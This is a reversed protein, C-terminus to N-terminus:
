PEVAVRLKKGSLASDFASNIEALRISPFDATLHNLLIAHASAFSVASALDRPTYNHVGEIRLLSTVVKEPRLPVPNSPAVSGALIIRGGTDALSLAAVVSENAGSTEFVVDAGSGVSHERVFAESTELRQDATQEATVLHRATVGVSRALALRDERRDIALVHAGAAAAMAAVFLGVAGSGIVLVVRGEVDGATRLAAAATAGACGLWAAQRAAISNPIRALVAGVPLHCFEAFGGSLQWRDNAAAHGFKQLSVCKQPIGRECYRCDGCSAAVGCIFRDGIAVSEGDIDTPGADLGLAVIRGVIEHGLLGSAPAAREGRFTRLDSACITCAEVKLLAEGARLEPLGVSDLEFPGGTHSLRAVIGEKPLDNLM